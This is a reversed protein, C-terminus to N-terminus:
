HSSLFSNVPKKFKKSLFILCIQVVSYQLSAEVIFIRDFLYILKIEFLNVETKFVLLDFFIDYIEM